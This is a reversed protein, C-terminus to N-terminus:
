VNETCPTFDVYFKDGPMFKGHLAPNSIAMELSASPTFAAFTNDEDSGDAPYSTSKSVAEMQLKEGHLTKTVSVIRFKARMSQM